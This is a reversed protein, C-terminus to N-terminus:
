TQKQALVGVGGQPRGKHITGLVAALKRDGMPTWGEQFLAM